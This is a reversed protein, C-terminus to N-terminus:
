HGLREHRSGGRGRHQSGAGGGDAITKKLKKYVSKPLRDRMVADNFVNKGFEETLNFVESM